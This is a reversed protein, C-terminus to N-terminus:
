AFTAERARLIACLTENYPVDLGAARSREVV